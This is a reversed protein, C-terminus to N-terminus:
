RAGRIDCRECTRCVHTTVRLGADYLADLAVDAFELAWALNDFTVPQGGADFQALVRRAIVNRASRRKRPTELLSRQAM